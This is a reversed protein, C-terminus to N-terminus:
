KAFEQVIPTWAEIRNKILAQADASSMAIPLIGDKLKRERVQPDNAIKLFTKELTAVVDAPTGVPVGVGHYVASLM